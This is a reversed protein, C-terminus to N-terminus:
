EMPPPVILVNCFAKHLVTETVSGLLMKRLIGHGQSGMVIVDIDLNEARELILGAADGKLLMAQADV